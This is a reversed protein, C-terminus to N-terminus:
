DSDFPRRMALAPDVASQYLQRLAAFHAAHTAPDFLSWPEAAMLVPIAGAFKNRFAAFSSAAEDFKGSDAADGVRRLLLVLAKLDARAAARESKGGTVSADKHDPFKETLERLEGAVTDVTLTVATGDRAPIATDLVSLFDAAEKVNQDVDDHVSPEEGDGVARLYAVLDARDEATLGLYFMRDFHIVVEEYSGYRGDHFYPANFNADLLTPTKFMGYSGVDHQQHDVFGASPVHCAACSLGPDHTFPRAFLAEGRREAESPRGALKGDLGLRPNPLLDIDMIYAVLGDLIEPAPEAGAFEDVIVSRVFDRLSAMRGDHGYPALQRAGRLSPITVPDLLGNDAKPNFLAGTTDFTGPRISLGPLFFRPNGAGNVHCTNCSLGAQRAVGGFISPASFAMDGLNVLYSKRGQIAESHFLERPQALAEEGLETGAPLIGSAGGFEAAARNASLFMLLAAIAAAARAM